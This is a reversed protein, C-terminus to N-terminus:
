FQLRLSSGWGGGGPIGLTTMVVALKRNRFLTLALCDDVSVVYICLKQNGSYKIEWYFYNALIHISM